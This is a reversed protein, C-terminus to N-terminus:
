QGQKGPPHPTGRPAMLQHTRTPDPRGQPWARYHLAQDSHQTIENKPKVAM